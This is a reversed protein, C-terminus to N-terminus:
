THACAPWRSVASGCIAGSSAATRRACACGTTRWSVASGSHRGTKERLEARTYGFMREAAPNADIFHANEFDSVLVADLAADFMARRSEEALAQATVDRRVAVFGRAGDEGRVPAVAVATRFMREDRRRSVLEGRWTEGRALADWMLAYEEARHLGSRLLERPTRGQAEAGTWGTMREFADNVWRIVGNEDSVEVAVDAAALADLAARQQEPDLLPAPPPTERPPDGTPL